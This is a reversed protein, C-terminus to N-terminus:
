KKQTLRCNQQLHRHAAGGELWRRVEPLQGAEVDLFLADPLVASVAPAFRLLADRLSELDSRESPPTRREVRLTPCLARAEALAMGAAVGARAVPPTFALVRDTSRAFEVLVVPERPDYGCREIRFAPLHVALM